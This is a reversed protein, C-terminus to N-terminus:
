QLRWPSSSARIMETPMFEAGAMPDVALPEGNEDYVPEGGYGPDEVRWPIASPREDAEITTGDTAEAPPAPPPASAKAVTRSQGAVEIPDGVRMRAYLVRADEYAIRVCGHSAAHGPLYGEHLWYPGTIQLAYPMPTPQNFYNTYSNSRKDMDKARVRFKGRPTPHERSGSSIEGALAITGDEIYEFRQADLFIYLKRSKAKSPEDLPNPPEPKAVDEVPEPKAEPTTACGAALLSAVIIACIVYPSKYM